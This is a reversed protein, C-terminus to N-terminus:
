SLNQVFPVTFTNFCCLKMKYKIKFLVVRLSYVMIKYLLCIFLRIQGVVIEYHVLVIKVSRVIVYFIELTTNRMLAKAFCRDTSIFNSIWLETM